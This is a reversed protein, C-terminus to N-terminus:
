IHGVQTAKTLPHLYAAAGAAGAARAAHQAVPDRVERAARNADLATVRQLRSRALGGAFAQAADIAAGPRPDDPAAGEFLHLVDAACAVAYRTVARLDETSLEVVRDAQCSPGTPMRMVPMLSSTVLSGVRSPVSSASPSPMRRSAATTTPASYSSLGAVTCHTPGALRAGAASQDMSM